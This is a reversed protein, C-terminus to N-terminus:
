RTKLYADKCLKKVRILIKLADANTKSGIWVQFLPQNQGIYADFGAQKLRTMVAMANDRRAYTGAVIVHPRVPNQAVAVTKSLQLAPSVQAPAEIKASVQSAIREAAKSKGIEVGLAYVVVMLLIIGISIFIVKELSLTILINREFDAKPLFNSLKPFSRKPKEFEFM